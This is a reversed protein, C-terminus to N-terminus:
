MMMESETATSRSSRRYRVEYLDWRRNCAASPIALTYGWISILNSFLVRPHGLALPVREMSSLLISSWVQISLWQAITGAGACRSNELLSYGLHSEHLSAALSRRGNGYEFDLLKKRLQLPM